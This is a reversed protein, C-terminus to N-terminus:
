SASAGLEHTLDRDEMEWAHDLMHYASHRILYRLPWKGASKGEAHYARITALYEQRGADREDPEVMVHEIKPLGKRPRWEQECWLTHRIIDNRSRGGGRPGLRLEASVRAGVGDFFAWCGQLLALDRELDDVSMPQHDFDSFAFSIGWYDTSPTGQFSTLSGAEVTTRSFEDALGAAAAIPAYRDRYALVRETAIEVSKGGRELGPWDPAFAAFKKGKPGLEILIDMGDSM